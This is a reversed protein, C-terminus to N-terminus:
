QNICVASLATIIKVDTALLVIMSSLVIGTQGVIWPMCWINLLTPFLTDKLGGLKTATKTKSREVEEIDDFYCDKQHV